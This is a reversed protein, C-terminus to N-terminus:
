SAPTKIEDWDNGGGAAMSSASKPTLELDGTAKSIRITGVEIGAMTAAEVLRKIDAKRFTSPRKSM